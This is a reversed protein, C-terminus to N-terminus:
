TIGYGWVAMLPIAYVSVFNSIVMIYASQLSGIILM